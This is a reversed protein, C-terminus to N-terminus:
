DNLCLNRLSDIFSQMQAVYDDEDQSKSIMSSIEITKAKSDEIINDIAETTVGDLLIITNYTKKKFASKTNNITSETVTDNDLSIINFGYNQLYGFIDDNVVLTNKGKEKAEKGIARLDADMLSLVEALEEYRKEVNEIIYKSKLYEVLNDKINKALMLYNNPSLWLEEIGYTYNLGYSVDIILLNKNQNILNKAINKENSLGNYIFLDAKAYTKIRKETLEYTSIDADVPYISQSKSYDGYLSETLYLIPYVTTNITADELNDKVLSCGTTFFLAILLTIKKM